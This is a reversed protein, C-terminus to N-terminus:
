ATKRLADDNWESNLNAGGIAICEEEGGDGKVGGAPLSVHVRTGTGPASEISMAGGSLKVLGKVLALGLGTGQRTYSNQVQTFPTGVRELDEASMGIGTDSVDLELRGGSRRATVRVEGAPTFKVANSLLNILVQQVARRDCNVVGIDEAIDAKLAVSKAEAERASMALCFQLAEEFRFPHSELAYAGSQLKSVDLIANVVSLLHGSAERILGVYERQRDNAFRGFMENALVDSFGLIANLPSRLEHSVSALYRDKALTASDAADKASALAAELEATAADDRVVAVLGSGDPEAAIDAILARYCAGAPVGAQAPTRMRMRVVRRDAGERLDALAQLYAIRDAVHIRDFFGTGLLMEPAVAFLAEAQPSAEVVDGGQQMRLVAAGIIEEIPRGKPGAAAEREGILPLRALLTAVYLLPVAWLWASAPVADAFVTASLAAGLGIASGAAMLGFGLARKTRGIWGAEVALAAAMATLPSSLGGGAATLVGVAVAALMLSAPEVLRRRGTVILAFAALLGAGFVMFVSAFAGAGGGHLPMAQATAIAALVPGALLAALLRRQRAREDAGMVSPHLLRECAAKLSEPWNTSLSARTSM